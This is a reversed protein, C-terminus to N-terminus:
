KAQAVMQRCVSHHGKEPEILVEPKLNLRWVPRVLFLRIM